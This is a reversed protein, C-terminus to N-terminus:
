KQKTLFLCPFPQFASVRGARLACTQTVTDNLVDQGTQRTIARYYFCKENKIGSASPFHTGIQMTGVTNTYNIYM